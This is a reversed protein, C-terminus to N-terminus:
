RAEQLERAVYADLVAGDIWRGHLGNRLRLPLKITAVPEDEVRAADLILLDSRMEQYRNILAVLYGDSEGASGPRPIFVPEQAASAEGVHHFTTEGSHQDVRGICAFHFGAMSGPEDPDLAPNEMCVYGYRYPLTSVREDIRPFEGPTDSLRRQTFDDTPAAVDLTWRSVYPKAAEPDFPNGHIEPFFPFVVSDSVPMDVHLKTGEEFANMTHSAFRTEGVYWRVPAEPDRRRLVGLYVPRSPDWAFYPLGEKLRVLDSILPVVPFVVYSETVAFDHVMSSYPAEFWREFVITGDADAEYYAIDPTPEGKAAYGFFVLAGTRPDIKPHATATMSHLAGGYDHPGITELTVPDIEVPHSDEKLVLMKGGHWVVNTNATGRSLGAVSPDDTFPNRYAGFLSRGAQREAVFKPTRVYRCKFDVHGDEFRFMSVMGDGNLPIDTGLKPPFQPDPGVRYFAGNLDRPVEGQIVELCQIDAEFRGPAQFGEYMRIGPFRM